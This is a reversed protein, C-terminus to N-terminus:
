IEQLKSEFYIAYENDAFSNYNDGAYLLMDVLDDEKICTQVAQDIAEEWNKCVKSMTDTEMNPEYYGEEDYGGVHSVVQYGNKTVKLQIDLGWQSKERFLDVSTIQENKSM